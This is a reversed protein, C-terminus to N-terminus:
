ITPFIRRKPIDKRDWGWILHFCSHDNRNWWAQPHSPFSIGFRRIKWVIDGRWLGFSSCWPSQEKYGSNAQMASVKTAQIASILSDTTTVSTHTM